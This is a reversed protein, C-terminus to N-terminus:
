SSQADTTHGSKEHRKLYGAFLIRVVLFVGALVILVGGEPWLAHTRIATVAGLLLFLLALYPLNGLFRMATARM